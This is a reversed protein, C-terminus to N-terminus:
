FLKQLNQLQKQAIFLFAGQDTKWIVNKGDVTIDVPVDHTAGEHAVKAIGQYKNGGQKLVTVESVQLNYQVFQPDSSFTNNMSTKVTESIENNSMGCGMIVFTIGVLIATNIKKFM